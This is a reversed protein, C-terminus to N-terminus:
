CNSKLYTQTYILKKFIEGINDHIVLNAFYDQKTKSKNILVLNKGQFYHLLSAAPYVVLSTGGIILTDAESIENIAKTFTTQNPIEEYLTVDPKIIGNCKPCCPIKQNECIKLFEKLNYKKNCKTCTNSDITGHLKLVNKSGAMEHLCDINQTIVASLKGQQELKALYKHAFNPKASPYILHKKYFDYFEEPYKKYMTHSVLEEPSFNRDLELSYVGNASRFDPIGSETSVGAGGFFVIRKSEDIIKQLLNIKDM